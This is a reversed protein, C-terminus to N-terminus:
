STLPGLLEASQAMWGGMTKRSIDIGHREFMKEQRDAAPSRGMESRDSASVPESGGHEERDTAAAQHRDECADQIVKM